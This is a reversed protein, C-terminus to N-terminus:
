HVLVVAVPFTPSIDGGLFWVSTPRRQFLFFSLYALRPKGALLFTRLFFVQLNTRWPVPPPPTAFILQDFGFSFGVGEGRLGGTLLAPFSLARGGDRCMFGVCVIFVGWGCGGLAVFVGRPLIM